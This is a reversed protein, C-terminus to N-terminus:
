RRTVSHMQCDSRTADWRACCRQNAPNRFGYAERAELKAVGNLGESRANSVGLM